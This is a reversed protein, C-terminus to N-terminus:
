NNPDGCVLTIQVGFVRDDPIESGALDGNSKWDSWTNPSTYVRYELACNQANDTLRAQLGSFAETVQGAVENNNAWASWGSFEDYVRYEIGLNTRVGNVSIELTEIAESLDSNGSTQGNTKWLTPDGTPSGQVLTRYLIQGGGKSINKPQGSVAPVIRWAKASNNVSAQEINSDDDNAAITQQNNRAEIKFSGTQNLSIRWLQNNNGTYSQQVISGNSLTLAKEESRSRIYTYGNDGSEFYWNQSTDGTHDSIFVEEGDFFTEGADLLQGSLEGVINIDGYPLLQWLADQVETLSHTLVLQGSNLQDLALYQDNSRSQLGVYGDRAAVFQWQAEFSNIDNGLTLIGSANNLAYGSSRSILTFYGDNSPQISWLQSLQTSAESVTAMTDVHTDGYAVDLMHNNSQAALQVTSYPQIQVMKAVSPRGDTDVAILMYYGPPAINPSEPSLVDLTDGDQIFDLPVLRQGFNQHHTVTGLKIVHVKDINLNSDVEMSFSHDYGVSAPARTIEPRTALSGDENFFYPPSFIEANLENENIDFPYGTGGSFVRGDPLLVATSHYLRNIRMSSLTTWQQTEPSWLEASFVALEPQFGAPTDGTHGGTKLLSGDALITLNGHRRPMGMSNGENVIPSPGNIDILITSATAGYIDEGSNDIGQFEEQGGGTIFMKGINYLAYSGYDRNISDGRTGADIEEGEGRLDFFKMDTDPGPYFLQGNPAVQGWAYYEFSNLFTNQTDDLVDWTGDFRFVELPGKAATGAFNVMDGSAMTTVSPYYRYIESDNVRSFREGRYDFRTANLNDQSQVNPESGTILLNGDPMLDFGSCFMESSQEGFTTNIQDLASFTHNIPDWITVDSFGAYLDDNTANHTLLRGDPMLSAHVAVLPWDLPVSWEGVESRNLLVECHEKRKTSPVPDIPFSAESCFISPGTATIEVSEDGSIYRVQKNNGPFHCVTGNASCYVWQQNDDEAPFFSYDEDNNLNKIDCRKLVGEIPENFESQDCAIGDSVVRFDYARQAGFRVLKTGTFTCFESENACQTWESDEPVIEYFCSKAVGSIPDVFNSGNCDVGDTYFNSSFQGNAGFYVKQEGPFDCFGGEFACPIWNENSTVQSQVTWTFTITNSLGEPDSVTISTDFVNAETPIGSILGSATDLELGTPLGTINYSLTEGEPDQAIVTFTQLVGLASLKSVPNEIIPPLNGSSSYSCTKFLGPAPDGFVTNGCEVSGDFVGFAYNNDAGYRVQRISGNLDCTQQEDACYIWEPDVVPEDTVLWTFSTTNSNGISDIVSVSVLNSGLESTVGSILGSSSDISLGLPLNEASFALTGIGASSLALQLSSETGIESTQTSPEELEVLGTVVLRYECVKAVGPTPDGFITNSCSVGDTHTQINYIGNNGYRVEAEGTFNCSGREQACPIWPAEPNDPDIVTWTINISDAVEGDILLSVDTSYNGATNVTGTIFGSTNIALGNPLNTGNFSVNTDEINDASIILNVQEGLTSVQQGPNNLTPVVEISNKYFCSKAVGPIPDGFVSNSCSVQGTFIGFNFARSTGYRVQRTGEFFCTEREGVCLIWDSTAPAASERDDLELLYQSIVSLDSANLTATNHATIADEISEASGDHLYPATQWLDRLTPTDIGDLTENLRNGSLATLSGINHRVQTNSDTFNAGSHCNICGTDAFLVKGIEADNSLSTNAGRIPSNDFSNLSEVYAAIADLDTSFGAKSDGLPQNRSGENFHINEMLGSGGSLGRIQGEFDQVEDFNGSWHLLGHAIGGKGRLSITNRLGEGFGTLDWTRGDHGGDNHCSACSIYEELALRPDAADYFLQKGLLVEAPLTENEILSYTASQTARNATGNFRLNYKNVTRDMFNHVFLEDGRPSLALAQPAIGTDIRNIEVGSDIHVVAVIRSSELAVLLYDGSPHYVASSAVSANDHDLRESLVETHDVLDIKSTIARVTNEHNLNFGDRAEGRLINDQKSPIWGETGDPHIALTGLYNPIGRGSSNTDTADSHALTITQSINFDSLSVTILEGGAQNINPSDTHEEPIKPTIFKSIYIYTSTQDIALGRINQGIYLQEKITRSSADIRVLDGSATLSVFFDEGLTDAIIGYPQSAENLAITELETHNQLSLISIDHSDKNTVWIENNLRAISRPAQGVNIESLKTNTEVDFISVSDNDPNVVWLEDNESNRTVYLIHSSSASVGIPLAELVTWEFSLSVPTQTEDTIIITVDFQGDISPEGSIKGLSDLTLGPPLGEAVISLNGTSNLISIQVTTDTNLLSLQARLEAVELPKVEKKYSCTKAQGPAPDGFTANSCNGGDIFTGFFYLNPEAGYRIEAEGSFECFENERACLEWEGPQSVIWDFSTNAEGSNGDSVFISVTFEEEENLTGTVLNTNENFNLSAPLGLLSFSLDDGDPDSASIPLSIEDGIVSYQSNISNIVPPLNTSTSFSCRKAHGPAPDGFTRNRCSAEGTFVEFAYSETVDSGYRVNRTGSFECIENEGACDIWESESEQAQVSQLGFISILSIATVSLSKRSTRRIYSKAIKIVDCINVKIDTKNNPRILSSSTEM